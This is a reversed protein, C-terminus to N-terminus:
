GEPGDEPDVRTAGDRYQEFVGRGWDFAAPADNAVVGVPRGAEDYVVVAVEERDGETLLLGFPLSEDTRWVAYGGTELSEAFASPHVEWTHELAPREVVLEATLEGSTLRDRFLTVYRRIAVPALGTVGDAARVLDEVYDLPRHPVHPEARVTEAGEVLDATMPADPPLASLVPQQRCLDAATGAFSRYRDVLLRGGLTLRVGGDNQEVLGHEELDRVAKYVTSRSVGLDDRLDRKDTVGDALHELVDARKVVTRIADHFDIEESM